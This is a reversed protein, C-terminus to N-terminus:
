TEKQKGAFETQVWVLGGFYLAPCASRALEALCLYIAALGMGLKMREKGCDAEQAATYFSFCMLAAAGLLAFVYDQLQPNSSWLQYRTVLHILFFLCVVVHLLFFPKKGFARSIGALLLCVSSALGLWYWAAELYGGMGPAATLVTVVIGGGAALSGVAAPLSAAFGDTNPQKRVALLIWVLAGVTLVALAIGLPSNRVLLGRADVAAAYLGWRLAYAALGFILMMVPLKGSGSRRVM